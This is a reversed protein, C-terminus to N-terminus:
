AVWTRFAKEGPLKGHVEAKSVDMRREGSGARDRKLGVGRYDRVRRASVSNLALDSVGEMVQDTLRGERETAPGPRPGAVSLRLSPTVGHRAQSIVDAVTMSM